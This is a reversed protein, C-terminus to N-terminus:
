TKWLHKKTGGIFVLEDVNLNCLSLDPKNSVSNYISYIISISKNVLETYLINQKINKM